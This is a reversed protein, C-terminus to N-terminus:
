SPRPQSPTHPVVGQLFISADSVGTTSTVFVDVGTAVSVIEAVTDHTGVTQAGESVAVMVLTDVLVDVFVGVVVLVDVCVGVAVSVVVGVVVPVCVKTLVGVNVRVGV